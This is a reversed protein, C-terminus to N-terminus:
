RPEPRYVVSLGVNFSKIIEGQSASDNIVVYLDRESLLDQFSAYGQDFLARSQFTRGLESSFHRVNTSISPRPGNLVENVIRRVEEPELQELCQECHRVLLLRRNPDIAPIGTNWLGHSGSAEIAKCQMYADVVGSLKSRIRTMQCRLPHLRGEKAGKSKVVDALDGYGDAGDIQELLHRESPSLANLCIEYLEREFVIETPDSAPDASGDLSEISLFVKGATQRYEDVKINQATISAAKRQVAATPYKDLEPELRLWVEGLLDGPEYLVSQSPYRQATSATAAKIQKELSRLRKAKRIEGYDRDIM